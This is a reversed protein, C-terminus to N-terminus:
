RGAGEPGTEPYHHIGEEGVLLFRGEGLPLAAAFDLGSSHIHRSVVGDQRVVVEGSNGVLLLVGDQEAAGSLSALTGTEIEDWSTGFDCSAMAHGRLGYFVVCEDDLLIAGWMSGIYPLDLPEWSAGDDYSRYSYGAEGAIMRRGDPLRVMANLHYQNDPDVTADEWNRGGDRTVLYLGYSGIAVGNQDDTFLLDMVAQQREPDFYQLTWTKGRDGSTIIAADHGAAWLRGGISFVTTLTSRTPVADAQLWNEGDDSYVVHGREGVAVFRDDVRAIDLLISKTALRQLEAYEIDLGPEGPAPDALVPSALLVLLVALHRLPRLIETPKV